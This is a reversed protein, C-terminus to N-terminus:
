SSKRIKRVDVMNQKEFSSPATSRGLSTKLSLRGSGQDNIGKGDEHTVAQGSEVKQFIESQLRTSKECPRVSKGSKMPSNRGYVRLPIM